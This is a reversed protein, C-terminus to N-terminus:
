SNADLMSVKTIHNFLIGKRGGFLLIGQSMVLLDIRAAASGAKQRELDVLERCCEDVDKILSLDAAQLFYFEGSPALRRCDAIIKEAAVTNRGVIYVRLGAGTSGHNSALSRLTYEGIGSTGGIFVAVLPHKTLAVNASRLDAM